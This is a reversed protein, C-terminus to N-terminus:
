RQISLHLQVKSNKYPVFPLSKVSLPHAWTFHVYSFFNAKIEKLKNKEKMVPFSFRYNKRLLNIYSINVTAFIVRYGKKHFTDAIHHFGAKRHSGYYHGSLLLVTKM